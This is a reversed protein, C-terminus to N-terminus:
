CVLFYLFSLGKSLRQMAATYKGIAEAYQGNKFLVNGENKLKEVVPPLLPHPQHVPLVVPTKPQVPPVVPTEPLVPSAVPMKLQVSPAMPTETQVPPVLEMEPPVPPVEPTDPHVPAESSAGSATGDQGQEGPPAKTALNTQGKSNKTCSPPECDAAEVKVWDENRDPPMVQVKTGKEERREQKTVEGNEQGVKSTAVNVEDESESDTHPESESETGSYEEIIMRHGKAKQEVLLAEVEKLLAQFTTSHKLILTFSLIQTIFDNKLLLDFTFTLSELSHFIHLTFSWICCSM